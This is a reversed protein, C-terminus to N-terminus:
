RAGHRVMTDLVVRPGQLNSRETYEPSAADPHASAQAAFHYVTEIPGAARVFAREVDAPETVDGAIITVGAAALRALAAADSSFGNELAVVTEGRRLLEEALASAM